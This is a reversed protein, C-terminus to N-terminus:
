LIKLHELVIKIGLLILIVGGTLEAKDEYKDGFISGIKTGLFCLIFTIIGIFGIAIYLNVNLFAFTIGVALADISTAIALIIMEKFDIKDNVIEKETGLSDKIMKIGIIVLLSFTLWHDISTIKDAFSMGLFYGIVPMLAQFIGMYSAVIISKKLDNKKLSVGKCISVAFADMGLGISLIIIGFLSMREGKYKYRALFIM